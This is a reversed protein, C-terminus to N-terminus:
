VFLDSSFQRNSSGRRTLATDTRGSTNLPPTPGFDFWRKSKGTRLIVWCNSFEHTDSYSREIRNEKFGRWKPKTQNNHLNDSSINIHQLRIYIGRLSQRLGSRTPNWIPRLLHTKPHTHSRNKWLIVFSIQSSRLIDSPLILISYRPTKSGFIATPISLLRIVGTRSQVWCPVDTKMNGVTIELPYVENQGFNTWNSPTRIDLFTFWIFLNHPTTRNELRKGLFGVLEEKCYFFFFFFKAVVKIPRDRPRIYVTLFCTM